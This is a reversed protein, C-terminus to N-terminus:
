QDEGHASPLWSGTSSEHVHGGFDDADWDILPSMGRRSNAARFPPKGARM